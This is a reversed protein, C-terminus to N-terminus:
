FPRLSLRGYAIFASIAAVVLWYVIEGNLPFGAALHVACFLLMEAAIAGAAIPTFLALTKKFAPVLLGVACVLEVAILALWVAHPISNLSAVSQESHSLKWAAGTGTHLALLIQLIWLVINM